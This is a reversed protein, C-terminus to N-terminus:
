QCNRTLSLSWLLEGFVVIRQFYSLLGTLM